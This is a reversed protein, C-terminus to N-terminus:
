GGSPSPTTFTPTSQPAAEPPPSAPQDAPAGREHWRLDLGFPKGGFSPATIAGAIAAFAILALWFSLLKGFVNAFGISREALALILFAVILLVTAAATAHIVLYTDMAPHM